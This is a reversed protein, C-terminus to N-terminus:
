LYFNEIKISVDRTSNAIYEHCPNTITVTVPRRQSIPKKKGSYFLNQKLSSIM